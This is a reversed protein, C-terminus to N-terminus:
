RGVVAGLALRASRGALGVQVSAPGWMGARLLRAATRAGFLSSYGFSRATISRRMSAPALAAIVPVCRIRERLNDGTQVRAATDQGDHVRYEALIQNEFWVPGATALRMWMEWDAAHPLDTRFDGVAAYTARRVVVGPPRVRNSVGLTEVATEWIGSGDREARTAHLFQGETDIYAAQCFALSLPQGLRDSSDYARGMASYFGPRVRDDAHLIHVLEGRAGRLCRNFTAIAGLNESNRRIEVSTGGAAAAVAVTADTSADDVVVVEISGADDLQDLVSAITDAIHAAANYAPIMVSWRVPESPSGTAPGSM